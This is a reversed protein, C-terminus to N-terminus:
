EESFVLKIEFSEGKGTSEFKWKSLAAIAAESFVKAKAPTAEVVEVNTVSGSGDVSLKAKIVGETVKKRVAEEPFEPPVKKLVKPMSQAQASPAVIAAGVVLALSMAVVRWVPFSVAKMPVGKMDLGTCRM